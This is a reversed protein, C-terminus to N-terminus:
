GARRLSSVVVGWQTIYVHRGTVRTITYSIYYKLIQVPVLDATSRSPLPRWRYRRIPLRSENISTSIRCIPRQKIRFDRTAGLITRDM